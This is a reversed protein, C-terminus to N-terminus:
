VETVTIRATDFKAVQAPAIEITDTSFEVPAPSTNPDTGSSAMEIVLDEIGSVSSYVQGYFRKPIVDEGLDLTDGYAVVANAIAAEGDVPFIEADYITYEVNAWIYQSQPRSFSVAQDNGQNDQLVVTTSGYTEVGAPKTDWIVDAITNDSGGDVVSEYSKAPRGQPDTSTTRNEIVVAQTVGQIQNLAAEIAPVTAKGAVQVSEKSRVRLEEDTEESRGLTLAIPNNVSDLGSIPTDVNIITNALAEIAGDVTNEVTGISTVESATLEPPLNVAIVDLTTNSTIVLQTGGASKTATYDNQVGIKAVLGAVITAATAGIGSTHVYTDNEIIVIYDTRDLVTTVDVIVNACATIDLTVNLPNVYTNNVTDSFQSNSPIITNPTGTFEIDGSTPSAPQRTIGILTVLDDLQKGVAVDINFADYVAQALAWQDAISTGYISNMIGLLSDSTLDIDEGLSLKLAAELEAVVEPLRKVELGTETLAM